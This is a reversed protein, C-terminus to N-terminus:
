AVDGEVDGGMEAPAAEESEDGDVPMEVADDAAPMMGDDNTMEDFIM